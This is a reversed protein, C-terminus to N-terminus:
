GFLKMLAQPAQNALSLAQSGLQQRTQLAQLQASQGALDADVLSGLGHGLSDDQSFTFKDRNGGGLSQTVTDAVGNDTGIALNRGASIRNQTTTLLSQTQNLSQLAMMAGINTTVSFSVFV